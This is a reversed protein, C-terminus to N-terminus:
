QVEGKFILDFFRKPGIIFHTLMSNFSYKMLGKLTLNILRFPLNQKHYIKKTQQKALLYLRKQQEVPYVASYPKANSGYFIKTQEENDSSTDPVYYSVVPKIGMTKSWNITVLDKEYSAGPLGLIFYGRIEDFFKKATVVAHEIQQKTEGKKITELVGDDVSEIGFGIVKCGSLKLRKAQDEDFRDGRLGNSCTWLLNLNKVKDCFETVRDKKLNFVDDIIEFSVIGYKQKAQKLEEICNDISRTKYKRNRCACFTCQFPCGTSTLLPYHWLGISWNTSMYNFSDFLEYKPFPLNDSFETQLEIKESFDKFPYCCQVDLANVSKIVSNKYKAEYKDVVTKAENYAFSRVSVGLTKVKYEMFRDKPYPLVHQDVVPTNFVTSAYALSMNPINIYIESYPDVFLTDINKVM